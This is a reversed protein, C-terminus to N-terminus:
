PVRAALRIVRETLLYLPFPKAIVAMGPALHWGDLTGGVYGTIPLVPLCHANARM